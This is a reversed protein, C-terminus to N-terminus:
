QPWAFPPLSGSWIPPELANEFSTRLRVAGRTYPLVSTSKIVPASLKGLMVWDSVNLVAFGSSGLSITTAYLSELPTLALGILMELMDNEVSPPVVKVRRVGLGKWFVKPSGTTRYLLGVWVQNVTHSSPAGPQVRPPYLFM